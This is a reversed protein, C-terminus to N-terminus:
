RNTTVLLEYTNLKHISHHIMMHHHIKTGILEAKILM